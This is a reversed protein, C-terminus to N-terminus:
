LFKVNNEIQTFSGDFLDSSSSFQLTHLGFLAKNNRPLALPECHSISDWAVTQRRLTPRLICPIQSVLYFSFWSAWIGHFRSAWICQLWSVWTDLFWSVWLGQFWSVGIGLILSVWTGLFQSAGSVRFCSVSIGLFGFVRFGPFGSVSFGPLGPLQFKSLGSVKFSHFFFFQFFNLSKKLFQLFVQLFFSTLFFWSFLSQNLHFGCFSFSSTMFNM